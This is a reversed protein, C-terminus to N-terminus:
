MCPWTDGERNIHIGQGSRVYKTEIGSISVYIPRLTGGNWFPHFCPRLPENFQRPFMRAWLLVNPGLTHISSFVSVWNRHVFDVCPLLSVQVTWSVHHPDAVTDQLSAFLEVHVVFMSSAVRRLGVKRDGVYGIREQRRPFM